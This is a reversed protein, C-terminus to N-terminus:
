KFIEGFYTSKVCKQRRFRVLRMRVKTTSDVLTGPYALRPLALIKLSKPVAVRGKGSPLEWDEAAIYM